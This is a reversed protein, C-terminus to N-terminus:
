YSSPFTEAVEGKEWLVTRELPEVAQTEEFHIMADFQDSLVAHFYHSQRETQPAYIVGIARQLRPRELVHRLQPDKRLLVYFNSLGTQSFMTEYSGPLAPRVRKREASSDWNSAATVTGTNTSFGILYALDQFEQRVLQGINLEGSKGLETARADGIHSNHAWVIVKAEQHHGLHNLLAKLTSFMHTDRINWSKVRGAFMTRYYHEADKALLANMEANFFAEKDIGNQHTYTWAHHQLEQLQAIVESECNANLGYVAQFGYDQLDQNVFDFCGYRLKAKEAAEPDIKELYGIVAHISTYLSYLDLGYFGIKEIPLLEDNYAKLWSIFHLMDANRWMWTPFRKFGDLATSASISQDLHGQVYQNVQYSDPWDAEIAIANFGKEIILQQTIRARERYFEHTGHSAEGILVLRCEGIDAMLDHYDRASQQIPRAALQLLSIAEHNTNHTNM